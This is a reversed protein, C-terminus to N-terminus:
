LEIVLAMTLVRDLKEGPTLVTTGPPAGSLPVEILSPRNDYVLQLSAKLVLAGSLVVAIANTWDGRLDETDEVNEDVLLLTTFDVGESIRRVGDITLRVGGFGDDAGPAPDVDKQITYTGGVDTKLRGSDGDYWTRGLGLVAAYRNEIGAFTNRDWGFGAFAFSGDFQRDYRSRAYYSAATLQSTTTEAVTFDTETGTATRVKTGTEGRIGGAELKFANPGSEGLLTGKLGFTSSSANGETAVYSLETASEWTFGEADQAAVGAASSTLVALIALARTNMM